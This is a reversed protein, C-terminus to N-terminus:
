RTPKQPSSGVRRAQSILHAAEPLILRTMALDLAAPSGPLLFVGKGGVVGACTRSLMAAAGIEAYSLARFLEGFGPLKKEFRTSVAELTVDRPSVGTGGTLLLIDVGDTELAATVAPRIAEIEDRVITSSVARHGAGEILQRLLRGGSDTAETRSDSVTLM